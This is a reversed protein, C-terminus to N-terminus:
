WWWFSISINTTGAGALQRYRATNLGTPNSTWTTGDYEETAGTLSVPPTLGDGGFGLAATQTGTGALIQRATNM